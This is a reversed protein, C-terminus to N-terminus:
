IGKSQFKVKMNLFYSEYYKYSFHAALITLGVILINSILILLYNPLNLNILFKLYVFGMLQMMIAHLMYIGYSIKGLYHMKKNEFFTIPEAVFLCIVVGFLIMSFFHYYTEEFNDSFISTSFYLIFIFFLPLKFRELIANLNSKILLISCLGSFSFYFFYMSYDKLFPAFKSFFTTFYVITFFGIFPIIRKIPLLFFLPAILIYFQEEIGISWLVEIIGGPQFSCFINPFFTATLFIGYWLDYNSEFAYGLDPLIIRYYLFGFGLVLYYLPFIRLIRRLFFAKLDISNTNTKEIYLQRIILFGSLSFFMYVAETGKHFFSLNDFFPFGRNKFFQPIHFLVVLLALIFRLSTINPLTKM